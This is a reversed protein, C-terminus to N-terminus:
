YFEIKTSDRRYELDMSAAIVTLIENLEAERFTSTFPVQLIEPDSVSITVDFKRELDRIVQRLEVDEFHIGGQTWLLHNQVDVKKVPSINGTKNVRAYDGKELIIEEHINTDIGTSRVSVSGDRVAVDVNADEDWGQVNFKTGLVRIDANETHVIFPNQDNHSVQFYAEGDLFVERKAGNFKRPFRISSAANLVVETGDSFTVSAKEGKDTVLDQMVYFEQPDQVSSGPLYRQAFYGSLLIVLIVAAARFLYSSTSSHQQNRHNISHAKPSGMSEKYFKEWADEANTEFDEEPTLKWIEELQRVLERNRPDKGMWRWLERREKPSANGTIYRQILNWNEM